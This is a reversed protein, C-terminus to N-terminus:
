ADGDTRILSIPNTAFVVQRHNGSRHRIVPQTQRSHPKDSTADDVPEGDSRWVLPGVKARLTACDPDLRYLLRTLSDHVSTNPRDTQARASETTTRTRPTASPYLIHDEPPIRPRNM